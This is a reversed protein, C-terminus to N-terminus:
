GEKRYNGALYMCMVIHLASSLRNFTEVIDARTYRTGERYADVAATETERVATRIQNLLAYARGMTYEPLVMQKIGFYKEPYHSRERLQAHDLGLIALNELPVEQVDCRMIERLILLIGGLDEILRPSEKPATEALIAQALVIQAQLSDLKGRFVIRPHNKPVLVNGHLHTMHEPKELYFSGTEFDVFRGPTASSPTAVGSPGGPPTAPVPASPASGKGIAIKRQQLYERAAPSLIKGEPIYYTEPQSARLQDRLISETIVKM